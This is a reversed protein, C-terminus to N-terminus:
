HLNQQGLVQDLLEALRKRRRRPVAIHDGRVRRSVKPGESVLDALQLDRPHALRGRCGSGHRRAARSARACTRRCPWATRGSVVSSAAGPEHNVGTPPSDAAFRSTLSATLIEGRSVGRSASTNLTKLSLRLRSFRAAAGRLP